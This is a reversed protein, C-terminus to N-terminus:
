SPAASPSTVCRMHLPCLLDLRPWPCFPWSSTSLAPPPSCSQENVHHANDQHEPSSSQQGGAGNQCPPKAQAPCPKVRDGGRDSKGQLRERRVETHTHTSCPPTWLSSGHEWFADGKRQQMVWQVSSGFDEESRHTVEVTPKATEKRSRKEVVTNSSTKCKHM